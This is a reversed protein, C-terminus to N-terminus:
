SVPQHIAKLELFEEIGWRGLERGIGSEGMGGYPAHANFPGGNITVTGAKLRMAIETAHDQDGSWVAAALGYRTSNAIEVADDITGYPIVSQVPGFIEERAITMEPRVGGFVTPAVFFGHTLGAPAETGGVLVRAGQDKGSEIFELVRRRQEASVLPGITTADDLPDGLVQREAMTVALSEADGVM